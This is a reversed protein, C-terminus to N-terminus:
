WKTSEGGRICMRLSYVKNNCAMYLIRGDTAGFAVNSTSTPMSIFKLLTGQPSVIWVGGLSTFYLNGRKDITM